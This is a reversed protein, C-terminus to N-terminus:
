KRYFFSLFRTFFGSFFGFIAGFVRFRSEPSLNSEAVPSTTSNSQAPVPLPVDVPHVFSSRSSPKLEREAKLAHIVGAQFITDASFWNILKDYAWCVVNPLIKLAAIATIAAVIALSDLVSIIASFDM